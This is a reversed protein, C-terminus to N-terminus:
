PPDHNARPDADHPNRLRSAMNHPHNSPIILHSQPTPLPLPPMRFGTSINTLQNMSPVQLPFVYRVERYFPDMQQVPYRELFTHDM